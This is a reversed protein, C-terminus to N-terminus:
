VRIGGGHRQLCFRFEDTFLIDNWEMDNWETTWTWRENCWQSCLRRQNGTLPLPLLPHRASIGSQQLRM